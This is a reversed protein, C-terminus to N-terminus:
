TNGWFAEYLSLIGIYRGLDVALLYQGRQVKWKPNRSQGIARTAKSQTEGFPREHRAEMPKGKRADVKLMLEREHRAEVKLM